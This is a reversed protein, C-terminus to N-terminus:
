WAAGPFAQYGERGIGWNGPSALVGETWGGIGPTFVGFFTDQGEEQYIYLSGFWLLVGDGSIYQLRKEIDDAKVRHLELSPPTRLM